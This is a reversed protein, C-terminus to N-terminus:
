HSKNFEKRGYKNVEKTGWLSVAYGDIVRINNKVGVSKM